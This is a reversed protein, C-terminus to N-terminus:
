NHLEFGLDANGPGCEGWTGREREWLKDRTNMKKSRKYIIALSSM